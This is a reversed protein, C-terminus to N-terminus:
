LAQGLHLGRHPLRGPLRVRWPRAEVEQRVALAQRWRAADQPCRNPHLTPRSDVQGAQSERRQLPAALIAGCLSRRGRVGVVKNNQCEGKRAEIFGQNHVSSRTTSATHWAIDLMQGDRTAADCVAATMEREDSDNKV